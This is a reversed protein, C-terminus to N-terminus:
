RPALGRKRGMIQSEREEFRREREFVRRQCPSSPFQSASRLKHTMPKQFFALLTPQLEIFGVADNHKCKYSQDDCSTKHANQKNVMERRPPIRPSM